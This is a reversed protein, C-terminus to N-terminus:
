VPENNEDLYGFRKMMDQHADILRNVLEIRLEKRWAGTQGQRFFPGPSCVPREQFGGASEQSQLETFDSFAVAKRVRAGDYPLGCFRVVAGFAAEPNLRMDEYRVPHVTLGSEDVWSRVHGSWSGLRQRLQDALKGHSRAKTNSPDCLEEVAREISIGYHHSYSKAVDLPSRIICVAGATVDAPFLAEGRGTLNWADHVKMYLTDTTKRALCRYVGPRLREIADDSLASAEVGVWEDFWARSSAIPGGDMANIDAPTEENRLYNTIFARMWTNGSKPYSVLWIIKGM